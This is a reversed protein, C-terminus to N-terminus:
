SNIDYIGINQYGSRLFKKVLFSDIFCATGTILFSGDKHMSKESYFKIILM